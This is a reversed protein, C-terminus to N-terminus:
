RMKRYVDKMNARIEDCAVQVQAETIIEMMCNKEFAFYIVAYYEQALVRASNQEIFGRDMMDKFVKEQQELPLEFVIRQYVNLAEDDSMREITLFKIMQYVYPDLLYKNFFAVAVECMQTESVEKASEFASDFSVRMAETMENIKLLLSDMISKKSEYYYYLSSEKIGVEKCIDRISVSKYGKRSFLSLATQEIIEKTNKKDAM